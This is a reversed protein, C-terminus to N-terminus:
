FKIGVQGHATFAPWAGSLGTLFLVNADAGVIWMGLSVLGTLGPELYLSSTSTSGPPLMTGGSWSQSRTFNGIGLQPRLTLLSVGINYGVEGGYLVSKLSEKVGQNVQSTGLYDMFSLGGYFGFFSAGARAGLGFGLPNPPNPPAVGGPQSEAGVNVPNTGGGIKAAVEIDVPGLASANRTVPLVCVGIAAALFHVSASKM